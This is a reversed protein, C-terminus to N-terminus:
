ECALYLLGHSQGGDIIEVQQGPFRARLGSAISSAEDASIARGLYVTIVESSDAGLRTLLAVAVRVLDDGTVEIRDDVLGVFRDQNATSRLLAAQAPTVIRATRIGRPAREMARLNEDATHESQFALAAAVCQAPDRTSLLRGSGALWGATALSESAHSALGAEDALVVYEPAGTERVARQLQDLLTADGTVIAAGLSRFLEAFGEGDAIVLLACRTAEPVAHGCTRLRRNQVQMDDVKIQGVVGLSSGYDIARTPQFTHLHVRVLQADGVALVSDGLQRMEGRIASPDLGVGNIVFETCYSYVDAPVGLAAPQAPLQAPESPLPEGRLSLSMGELLTALGLAGADVVGAQRLVPLSDRTREVAARAEDAVAALLSDVSRDARASDMAARAVERALTLMTGEVPRDVAAHATASAEDLARAFALADADDHGTLARAFGRLYQSVIVGSNGHAGLLAGRALAAATAGIGTTGSARAARVAARMTLVLNTGTDGDPVPFVNLADILNGRRALLETADVVVALLRTGDCRDIARPQGSTV